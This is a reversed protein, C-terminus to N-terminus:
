VTPLAATFHFKLFAWMGYDRHQEHIMRTINIKIDSKNAAVLLM